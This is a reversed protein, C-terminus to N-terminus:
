LEAALAGAGPLRALDATLAGRVGGRAPTRSSGCVPVATIRARDHRRCRRAARRAIIPSTM